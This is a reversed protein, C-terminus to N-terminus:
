DLIAWTMWLALMGRLSWCVTRLWNTKVLRHYVNVDFGNELSKHCPVQIFATSLWIVGLLGLGTWLGFRSIETTDLELLVIASALELLMPPAVVWTTLRSHRKEYAAFGQSGVGNFMAYHVIQVFWILGVMYLTSGLHAVFVLRTLTDNM